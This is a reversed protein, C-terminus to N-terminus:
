AWASSTTRYAVSGGFNMSAPQANNAFNSGVFGSALWHNTEDGAYPTSPATTKPAPTQTDQAKANISVVGILVAAIAWRNANM